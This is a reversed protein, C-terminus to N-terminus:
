FTWDSSEFEVAIFGPLIIYKKGDAELRNSGSPRICIAAVNKVTFKSGDAYHYTRKAEPPDLAVMEPRSSSGKQDASLSKENETKM